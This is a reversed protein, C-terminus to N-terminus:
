FGEMAHFFKRLKRAKRKTEVEEKAMQKKALRARRKAFRADQKKRLAAERAVIISLEKELRKQERAKKEEERKLRKEEQIKEREARAKARRAGPDFAAFSQPRPDLDEPTLVIGQHRAALIIDNLASSPIVGGAGGKSRPHSWRYITVKSKPRGVAALAEALKVHGGFKAVIRYVQTLIHKSGVRSLAMKMLARIELDTEDEFEGSEFAPAASAANIEPKKVERGDGPTGNYSNKLDIEDNM